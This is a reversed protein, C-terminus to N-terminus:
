TSLGVRETGESIIRTMRNACVRAMSHAKLKELLCMSM